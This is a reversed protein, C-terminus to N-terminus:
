AEAKSKEEVEDQDLTAASPAQALGEERQKGEEARQARLRPGIRAAIIPLPTVLVCIGALLVFMWGAGMKQYMPQVTGVEIAGMLCRTFNFQVTLEFGSAKRAAVNSSVSATVAGGQGPFLDISYVTTTTLFGSGLGCLFTFILPVSVHVHKQMTWGMAISSAVLVGAHWPLFSLRAKELCFDPKSRHDGGVRRKEKQYVKDMLLGTGM